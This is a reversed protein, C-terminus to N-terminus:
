LTPGITYTNCHLDLLTNYNCGAKILFKNRFAFKQIKAHCLTIIQKINNIM